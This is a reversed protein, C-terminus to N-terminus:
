FHYYYIIPFAFLLIFILLIFVGPNFPKLQIYQKSKMQIEKPQLKFCILENFFIAFNFFFVKYVIVEAM